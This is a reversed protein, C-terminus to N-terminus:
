MRRGGRSGGWYCNTQNRNIFHNILNTLIVERLAANTQSGIACM